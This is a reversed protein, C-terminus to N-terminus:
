KLQRRMIASAQTPTYNKFIDYINSTGFARELSDGDWDIVKAAIKWAEELGVKLGDNFAVDVLDCFCTEALKKSKKKESM